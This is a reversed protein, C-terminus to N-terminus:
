QEKITVKVARFWKRDHGAERFYAYEAQKKTIFRVDMFENRPKYVMMWGKESLKKTKNKM